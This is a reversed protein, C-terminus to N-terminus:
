RIVVNLTRAIKRTSTEPHAEIQNFVAKELELRRVTVPRGLDVTSKVFSCNGRIYCHINASIQRCPLNHPPYKEACTSQKM